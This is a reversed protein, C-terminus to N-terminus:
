DDIEKKEDEEEYTINKRLNLITLLSYLFDFVFYELIFLRDEIYLWITITIFGKALWFIWQESSNRYLKNTALVIFIINVAELDPFASGMELLTFYVIFFAVITFVYKIVRYIFSKRKPKHKMYFEVYNSSDFRKDLMKTLVIINAGTILLLHSYFEGVLSFRIAISAYYISQISYLLYGLPNNKHVLFSAIIGGLLVWFGTNLYPFRIYTIIGLLLFVIFLINFLIDINIKNLLKMKIM